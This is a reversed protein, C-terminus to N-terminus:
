EREAHGLGGVSDKSSNGWALTATVGVRVLLWLNGPFIHPKQFRTWLKWKIQGKGREGELGREDRRRDPRHVAM